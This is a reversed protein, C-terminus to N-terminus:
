VTKKRQKARNDGKRMRSKEYIPLLRIAAKDINQLEQKTYNQRQKVLHQRRRKEAKKKCNIAVFAFLRKFPICLTYIVTEIGFAVWQLVFRVGKSVSMHCLYFGVAMCLPAAARFAGNNLWYLLLILTLASVLCFLVDGFFIDIQLRKKREKTRKQFRSSRLKQITQVTYRSQSPALFLRMMYLFDCFLSLLVGALFSACCLYFLVSQSLRM